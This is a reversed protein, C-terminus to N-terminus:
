FDFVDSIYKRAKHIERQLEVNKNEIYREAERKEEGIKQIIEERKEYVEPQYKKELGIVFRSSNEFSEPMMKKFLVLGVFFPTLFRIPLSRRNVAISGGLAGTLIYIFNPLVPEVVIGKIGEQLNKIENKMSSKGTLYEAYYYDFFNILYKRSSLSIKELIQYSRISMGDIIKSNEDVEKSEEKRNGYKIGSKNIDKFNINRKIDEDDKYFERKSDCYVIGRKNNSVVSYSLLSGIGIPILRKGVFRISSM